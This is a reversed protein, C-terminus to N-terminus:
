QFISRFKIIKQDILQIEKFSHRYNSYEIGQFQTFNYKENSFSSSFNFKLSVFNSNRYYKNSSFNGAGNFEISNISYIDKFQSGEQVFGNTFKNNSINVNGENINSLYLYRGKVKTQHINYAKDLFLSIIDLDRSFICSEIKLDGSLILGQLRFDREFECDIFEIKNSFVLKPKSKNTIEPMENLFYADGQFICKKFSISQIGATSALINYYFNLELYLISERTSMKNNSFSPFVISEFNFDGKDVKESKILAWFKRLLDVDWIQIGEKTERYWDSKDKKFFDYIEAESM